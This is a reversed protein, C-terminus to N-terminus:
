KKRKKRGQSVNYISRFCKKSAEWPELPKLSEELTIDKLSSKHNILKLLAEVQKAEQETLEKPLIDRLDDYCYYRDDEDAGKKQLRELSRTKFQDYSMKKGKHEPNNQDLLQTFLTKDVM